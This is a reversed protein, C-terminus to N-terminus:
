PRLRSYEIRANHRRDVPIRRMTRIAPVPWGREACFSALQARWGFPRAAGRDLEVFLVIGEAPAKGPGTLAANRVYSLSRVAAEVQLPYVPGHPGEVITNVRGALWLRGKADRYGVDGMGHWLRGEGDVRKNRTEADPDAFYNRAVHEGSVWIEGVQGAPQEQGQVDLIKVHIDAVPYGLAVGAGSATLANTEALIEHGPMIAVPEAETSGYVGLIEAQPAVRQLRAVLDPLVPAGGIAIRRLPLKRGAALCHEAIALWYAPSGSATTVAHAAIQRLIKEAVVHQPRRFPFDPIVTTLGTALNHLTVMPFAPLDVDGVAAPLARALSAQQAALLRHTRVVGNPGSLGTSGGTFTILAPAEPAVESVRRSRDQERALRLLSSPGEGAARLRVPIRRLQPLLVQLWALARGGILAKAEVRALTEALQRRGAQPDLFVAAVGLKFLAILAAYLQLSIPALILVRDAARVGKAELAGALRGSLRDLEQFSVKPQGTGPFILAVRDPEAARELLTAVNM